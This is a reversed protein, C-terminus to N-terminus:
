LANAYGLFKFRGDRELITGFLRTAPLTGTATRVRVECREHLRNRGETVPAEPCRLAVVAFRARGYRRLLQTAGDESSALLQGWLLGPPAEYPPRSMRADPYYLWAFEARDVMLANLTATDNTAVAAAWRAVLADRSPAGHRLSDPREALGTRFRALAEPIPIISDVVGGAAVVEAVHAAQSDAATRPPPAPRGPRDGCATTTIALALM